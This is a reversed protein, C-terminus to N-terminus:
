VQFVGLYGAQATRKWEHKTFFEDVIKRIHPWKPDPYNHIAVLSGRELKPLLVELKRHLSEPDEEANILGLGFFGSLEKCLTIIDGQRFEVTKNLGYRKVWEVAETQDNSDLSLVRKAGQALSVTSRGGVTGLEVVEREAAVEWLLRCEELSL